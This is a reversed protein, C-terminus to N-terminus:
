AGHISAHNGNGSVDKANGNFDYYAVIQQAHLASASLILLWAPLLWLYVRKM